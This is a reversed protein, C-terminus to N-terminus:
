IVYKPLQGKRSQLFSIVPDYIEPPLYTRNGKEGFHVKIPLSDSLEVHERDLLTQLLLKGADAQEALTSGSPLPHFYVISKMHM